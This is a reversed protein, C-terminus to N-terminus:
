FVRNKDCIGAVISALKTRAEVWPWAVSRSMSNLYRTVIKMVNGIFGLVTHYVLIQNQNQRTEPPM